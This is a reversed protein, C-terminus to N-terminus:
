AKMSELIGKRAILWAPIYGAVASSVFLYFANKGIDAPVIYPSINGEPFEIPFLTFWTTLGLVVFIGFLIGLLSLILVQFLYSNIIIEQHVGIALLIGIQRRSNLTKIMIVVFLVVAAIVLSVMITISNIIAYSEVANRYANGLFELWTQVDEQVGYRLLTKKVEDEHYGPDTKVLISTARDIGRGEVLEIEDWTTFALYDTSYSYTRFIGKVQYEKVVGNTYEAIITDGTKVGGLSPLFDESSDRFGAVYRGLIIEGTDGEGLYTGEEMSAYVTTVLVEDHPRIGEIALPLTNGKFTLVAGSAIHPAARKVGPVRNVKDLLASLDEIYRTDEKPEIIVDSTYTEITQREYTEIAGTIISPMFIMNTFVM